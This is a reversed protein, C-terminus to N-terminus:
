KGDERSIAALAKDIRWMEESILHHSQHKLELLAEKARNLQAALSALRSQQISNKGILDRERQSTILLANSVYRQNDEKLRAIEEGQATLKENLKAWRWKFSSEPFGAKLMDYDAQLATLKSELSTAYESLSEHSLRISEKMREMEELATDRASLAKAIQSVLIDKLTGGVSHRKLLAVEVEHEILNEAEKRADNTM